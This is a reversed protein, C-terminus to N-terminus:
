KGEDEPLEPPNAAVGPKMFTPSEGSEEVPQVGTGGTQASPEDGAIEEPAAPEVPQVSVPEVIRAPPAPPAPPVPPVGAALTTGTYPQMGFRTLLVAGLGLVGVLAPVTWGVCPIQGIGDVVLTLVLTGLGAAVPLTWEAKFLSQAMRQGVELGLAIWGFVVMLGLLIFGLFSVPILLITIALGLLVLPAVIATILGMGGSIMPQTVVARSVQVTQRPLFMAVLVALASVLFARFFYNMVNWFPYQVDVWPMRVGIWPIRIGGPINFRFPGRFNENVNGNVKSGNDQSLSGGTMNVDGEVVATEGLMVSGGTTNIDGTITGDAVLNGGFVMVSGRVTSGKELTANGGFVWLNGDLTDGDALTYNDGFVFQDALGKFLPNALLGKSAGDAALASGPLALALVFLLAALTFLRIAKM